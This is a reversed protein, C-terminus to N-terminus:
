FLRWSHSKRGQIQIVPEPIIEGAIEAEIGYETAGAVVSWPDPTVVLFGNGMNWTEFAEQESVVGLDQVYKLLPCPPFLTTLNAGYGTPNLLRGLKEPIGGGTIHAMGTIVVDNRTAPLNPNIMNVICRTYIQSPWLAYEGFTAEMFPLHWWPKLHEKDLVHMLKTFGNSRLSDERFAVIKDGPTIMEGTILKDEQAIWVCTAGWNVEGNLRGGIEALEGNLIVVNAEQAASVLGQGLDIITNLTNDSLYSVDLVSGVLFPQGGWSIADDCVMALLDYALTNYKGMMEAIEPKTGIGDCNVGLATGQPLNGVRIYRVGSFDSKPQIVQRWRNDFAWTRKSATYLINSAENALNV